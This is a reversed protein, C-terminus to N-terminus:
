PLNFVRFRLSIPLLPDREGKDKEGAKTLSEGKGIM